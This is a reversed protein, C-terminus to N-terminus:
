GNCAQYGCNKCRQCGSEYILTREGCLPCKGFNSNLDESPTINNKEKEPSKVKEEIFQKLANLIVEGCSSGKSLERGKGRQIAFSNCSGIGEFAKEINKISGGLRLIASMSITTSELLRECGGVGVRKVYFDQISNESDSWGIFLNIKGCGIKLKKQYYVTDKAKPKWEGREITKDEQSINDSSEKKTTLIGMRKCGSRFITIGKLGMEWGSLYIKAIDDKTAYEPLNVTSSIGTDVHKQIIAQTKVRDIPNIQESGIFYDPLENNEHLLLYEKAAKCYITYEKEEENNLGTTRRNYSIAFEPEAGGSEGLFTAITGTPAISLLSCNRLGNKRLEAIEKASFHNKIINSDFVCDKYKPFIGKEKALENSAFVAERFMERFIYDTLELAENSGYKLGRKMLMTAYGFVGLGINRYNFSLEQQEKLPHRYLNEDILIDLTKIAIHVAKRFKDVNFYSNHKYPNEIFESLNLSALCCAGHKPLPQEGCPNPSEIIYDDDYEMLNYNKFKNIYICGPDGWDYNNDVMLKFVEIPTVDYEVIHGSYNRKEHLVVVEGTEYFKKVAEMFEDDIELSLNAKEILGEKSKITIFAPAEKHRADLSMMLAGKRAGGQSTGATVENYIKMFPIIGDSTYNNKISTGKPRLESLSLGEGGQGKFTIGIDMAAQMIDKYDDKIRGRTYCNHLSGNNDLGRNALARGGLLFKKELILSAVENDGGSIRKIWEMFTENNHQYKKHWIDIGVLNDNGLWEEVTYDKSM